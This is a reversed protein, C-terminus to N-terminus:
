MKKNKHLEQQLKNAWANRKIIEEPFKEVLILCMVSFNLHNYYALETLIDAFQYQQQSYLYGTLSFFMLQYIM